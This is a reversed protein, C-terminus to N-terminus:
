EFRFGSIRLPGTFVLYLHHVGAAGYVTATTTTWAYRGGTAPVMATGIVPGAAPDGLCLQIGAANGDEKAVQATFREVGDGFDVERFEIWGGPGTAAAADGRTRTDDVLEVRHYDDFDVAATDRGRLARPPIPEGTVEVTTAAQVDASSRGV